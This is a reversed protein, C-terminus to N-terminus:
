RDRTLERIRTSRLYIIMLILPLIFGAIVLAAVVLGITHLGSVDVMASQAMQASMASWLSSWGVSAIALYLLSLWSLIELATRAWARLNLFQVGAYLAVAGVILQFLSAGRSEQLAGAMNALEPPLAATDQPSIAGAGLLVAVAGIALLAGTLIWSWAILAVAAPRTQPVTNM